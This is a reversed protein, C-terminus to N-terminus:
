AVPSHGIALNERLPNVCLRSAAFDCFLSLFLTSCSRALSIALITTSAAVFRGFFLKLLGTLTGTRETSTAASGRPDCLARGLRSAIDQLTQRSGGQELAREGGASRIGMENGKKPDNAIEWFNAWIERELDSPEKGGRYAAPQSGVPDLVFADEPKQKEGFIRKFLCLSTSRLPDGEEINQDSFDVLLADIHIENGKISFVRPEELPKGQDDVEVFSFKTNLEGDKGPQQSLVDVYAVRHDVKLLRNATQLRSVNKNLTAVEKELGAIEVEKAALKKEAENRSFYTQYGFWGGAFLLALITM